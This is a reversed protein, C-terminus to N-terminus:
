PAAPPLPCGYIAFDGAQGACQCGGLPRARFLPRGYDREWSHNFCSQMTRSLRHQRKLLLSNYDGVLMVPLGTAILTQAHDVLRSFWRKKYEYKPGPYPNGFPLYICGIVTYYTFVKLFRSHTYEYRRRAPREKVVNIGPRLRQPDACRFSRYVFIQACRPPLCFM